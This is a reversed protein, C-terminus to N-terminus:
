DPRPSLAGLSSGHIEVDDKESGRTRDRGGPAAQRPRQEAAAAVADEDVAPFARLALEQAGRDAEDLQVLDEQRVVVCIVVEAQGPHQLCEGEAPTVRWQGDVPRRPEDLEEADQAPDEPLQRVVDLQSLEPGALGDLAGIVANESKRHLMADRRVPVAEDLIRAGTAEVDLFCALQTNRLSGKETTQLGTLGHLKRLAARRRGLLHEARRAGPSLDHEGAICPGAPLNQFGGALGIEEDVLRGERGLLLRPRILRKM